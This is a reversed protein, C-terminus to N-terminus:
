KGEREEGTKNEPLNYLFRRLFGETAGIDKLASFILLNTMTVGEEVARERLKRLEVPSLRLSIRETRIRKSNKKEM